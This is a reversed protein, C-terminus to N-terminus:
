EAGCHPGGVRGARRRDCIKSGNCAGEGGLGMGSIVIGKVCALGPPGGCGAEDQIMADKYDGLCWRSFAASGYCAWGVDNALTPRANLGM